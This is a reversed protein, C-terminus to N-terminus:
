KLTRLADEVLKTAQNLKRESERTVRRITSVADCVKEVLRKDPILLPLGLLDPVSIAPYMSATTYADM